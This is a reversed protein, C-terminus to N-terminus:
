CREAVRLIASRSRINVKIEDLSPKIKKHIWKFKSKLSASNHVETPLPLGRPLKLNFYKEPSIWQDMQQKVMRDELSHFSIVVMRGGSELLNPSSKLLQYLQDTEQNVYIRLAQFTRTAPHKNKDIFPMAKQIINALMRTTNIAGENAIHQKIASVIRKAFREEGYAKLIITLESESLESLLHSVPYGVEPNMRMDLPGDRMFSFGRAADDLQPSSVGLDLLIGSVKGLANHVELHKQIESFVSHFISVRVDKSFHKEAHAIADPDQDFIWLRGQDSLYKLIEATHGGRGYTADIYLGNPKINLGDLCEQLLVSTHDESNRSYINFKKKIQSM